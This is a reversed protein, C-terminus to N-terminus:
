NKRDPHFEQRIIKDCLKETDKGHRVVASTLLTLSITLDVPMRKKENKKKEHSQLKGIWGILM